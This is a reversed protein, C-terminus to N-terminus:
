TVSPFGRHQLMESQLPLELCFFLPDHNTLDHLSVLENYTFNATADMEDQLCPSEVTVVLHSLIEKMKIPHIIQRWSQSSVQKPIVPLTCGSHLLLFDKTSRMTVVWDIVASRRYPDLVYPVYDTEVPLPFPVKETSADALAINFDGCILAPVHCKKEQCIREQVQRVEAFFSAAREAQVKKEWHVCFCLFGPFVDNEVASPTAAPLKASLLACFTRSNIQADTTEFVQEEVDVAATDVFIGNFPEQGGAESKGFLVYSRNPIDFEIHEGFNKPAWQCEQVCFVHPVCAALTNRILLKRADAYGKSTKGKVNWCIIRFTFADVSAKSPCEAISASLNLFLSFDNDLDDLSTEDINALAVIMNEDLCAVEPFTHSPSREM